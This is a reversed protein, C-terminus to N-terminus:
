FARVPFSNVAVKFLQMGRVTVAGSDDSLLEYVEYLPGSLEELVLDAAEPDIKETLVDSHMVLEKSNFRITHDSPMREDELRALVSKACAVDVITVTYCDCIAFLEKM